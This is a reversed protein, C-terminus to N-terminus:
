IVRGKEDCKIAFDDYSELCETIKDLTDKPLIIVQSEEFLELHKIAILTSGYYQELMDAADKYSDCLSIGNELYYQEIDKDYIQVTYTFPYAM